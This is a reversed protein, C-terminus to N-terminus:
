FVDIIVYAVSNTLRIYKVFAHKEKHYKMNDYVKISDQLHHIAANTLM